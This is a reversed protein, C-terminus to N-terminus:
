TCGSKKEPPSTYAVKGKRCLSYMFTRPAGDAPSTSSHLEQGSRDLLRVVSAGQGDVSMEIVQGGSLKFTRTQGPTITQDFRVGVGGNAWVSGYFDVPQVAWASGLTGVSLFAALAFRKM